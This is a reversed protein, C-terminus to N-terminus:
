LSHNMFGSHRIATRCQCKSAQKGRGMAYWSLSLNESDNVSIHYQFKNENTDIQPRTFLILTM